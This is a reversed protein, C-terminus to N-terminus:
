GPITNWLIKIGGHPPYRIVTARAFATYTYKSNPDRHSKGVITQCVIWSPLPVPFRSTLPKCFHIM